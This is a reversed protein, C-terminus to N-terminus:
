SRMFSEVAAVEADLESREARTLRRLLAIEVKGGDTQRWTGELMGDVFLTSGVGGNMGMWTKRNEATTVRDRRAHSLWVNDYRGLLRVPAPEDGAALPLGALDVLTRGDAADYAVLEDSMSKLVPAMGTVGSWTTIDAGSGPGFARLYRRVIEAPDPERLDADLWSEVTDYVQGGPRRWM